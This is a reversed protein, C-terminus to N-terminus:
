RAGAKGMTRQRLLKEVAPISYYCSGGGRRAMPNSKFRPVNARDLWSRVTARSPVPTIFVAFTTELLQDLTALRAESQIPNKLM